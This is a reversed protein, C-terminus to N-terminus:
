CWCLKGSKQGSQVRVEMLQRQKAAKYEAHNNAIMTKQKQVEPDADSDAGGTAGTAGTSSEVGDKKEAAEEEKEDDHINPLKIPVFIGMSGRNHKGISALGLFKISNHAQIQTNVNADYASFYINNTRHISDGLTLRAAYLKDLFKKLVKQRYEIAELLKQKNVRRALRAKEAAEPDAEKAWKKSEADETTCASKQEGAFKNTDAIATELVKKINGVQESKKNAVTHEMEEKKAKEAKM